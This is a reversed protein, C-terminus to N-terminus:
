RWGTRQYGTEVRRRWRLPVSRAAVAGEAGEGPGGEVVAGVVKRREQGRREEGREAVLCGSPGERGGDVSVERGEGAVSVEVAAVRRLVGERFVEAVQWARKVGCVVRWAVRGVALVGVRM